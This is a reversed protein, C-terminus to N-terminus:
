GVSALTREIARTVADMSQMGDVTRLIGKERYYPLVPATQAHYVDLRKKLTEVNDDARAEGSQAARGEIRRILEGEDATMEIVVDIAKGKGALMKDLAAAQPLTRPFGDLIFGEACDPAEIREAVVNCILEDSVLKGAAMIAEAEKGVETGAAVAARLMDGTSLHALHHTDKLRAAQTGKGAGPPGFLILNM